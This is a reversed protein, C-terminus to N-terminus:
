EDEDPAHCRLYREDEIFCSILPTNGQSQIRFDLESDSDEEDDTYNWLNILRSSDGSNEEVEVDPLSSFQPSSQASAAAAFAVLFVLTITAAISTKTNLSSGRILKNSNLLSM